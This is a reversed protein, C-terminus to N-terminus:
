AACIGGLEIKVAPSRERLRMPMPQHVGTKQPPPQLSNYIHCPHYSCKTHIDLYSEKSPHLRSLLMPLQYKRTALTSKRLHLLLHVVRKLPPLLAESRLSLRGGLIEPELGQSLHNEVPTIGRGIVDPGLHKPNIATIQDSVVCGGGIDVKLMGPLAEIVRM